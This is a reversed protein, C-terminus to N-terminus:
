VTKNIRKSISAHERERERERERETERERGGQTFYKKGWFRYYISHNRIQQSNIYEIIQKKRNSAENGMIGM